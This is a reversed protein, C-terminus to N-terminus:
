LRDLYGRHALDILFGVRTADNPLDISSLEYYCSEQGFLDFELYCGTRAILTLGDLDLVTRDLHGMVTRGLDGGAEQVISLAELPAASNRGPHISLGAGTAVQARAAARLVKREAPHLPWTLGIEGIIGAQVGDVGDTIDRVIEEFVEDETKEDLIAPHSERVYYGCGMVVHVGSTRAIAQLGRPDRSLGISTVDIVCGGGAQRFRRMEDIAVDLDTLRLADRYWYQHMAADYRNALTIPEDWHGRDRARTASTATVHTFDILLHEHPQTMGLSASDVPGLVTQVMGPHKV